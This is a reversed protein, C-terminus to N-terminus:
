RAIKDSLGKSHKPKARNAVPLILTGASNHSPLGARIALNIDHYKTVAYYHNWVLFGQVLSRATPQLRASTNYAVVHITIVSGKVARFQKSGIKMGISLQSMVSQYETPDSRSCCLTPQVMDRNCLIQTQVCFFFILSLDKIRSESQNFILSSKIKSIQM